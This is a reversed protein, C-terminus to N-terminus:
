NLHKGIEKRNGDEDLHDSRELEQGPPTESSEVKNGDRDYCFSYGSSGSSQKTKFHGDEGCEPVFYGLIPFPSEALRANESDRHVQCPRCDKEDAERPKSCEFPNVEISEHGNDTCGNFIHTRCESKKEDLYTVNQGTLRCDDGQKPLACRHGKDLFYANSQVRKIAIIAISLIILFIIKPLSLM